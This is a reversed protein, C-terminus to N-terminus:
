AATSLDAVQRATLETRGGCLLARWQEASHQAPTTTALFDYLIEVFREPHTRHPFHGAGEFLELRSGPM